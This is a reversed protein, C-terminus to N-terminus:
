TGVLTSTGDGNDNWAVVKGNIQLVGDLAVAPTGDAKSGLRLNAVEQGDRYFRIGAAVQNVTIRIENHQDATKLLFSVGDSETYTNDTFLEVLRAIVAKATASKIQMDFYPNAVGEEKKAEASFVEKAGSVDGRVRLGNTSIGTNFVPETSGKSLDIKIAGDESTLTGTRMYSANTYLEGNERYIGQNAGNNTLLNFVEDQTLNASPNDAAKQADEAVKRADTAIGMVEAFSEGFNIEQKLQAATRTYVRDQKASV